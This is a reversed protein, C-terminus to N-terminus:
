GNGYEVPDDKAVERLGKKEGKVREISLRL